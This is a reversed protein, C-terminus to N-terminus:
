PASSFPDSNIGFWKPSQVLLGQLEPGRGARADVSCTGVAGTDVSVTRGIKTYLYCMLRWNGVCFCKSPCHVTQGRPSEMISRGFGFVRM